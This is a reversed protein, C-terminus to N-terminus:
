LLPHNQDVHSVAATSPIGGIDSERTLSVQVRRIYCVQPQVLLHLITKRVQGMIQRLRSIDHLDIDIIM